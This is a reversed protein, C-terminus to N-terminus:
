VVKRMNFRSGYLNMIVEIEGKGMKLTRAIQPITVGQQYLNLVDYFPTGPDPFEPLPPSIHTNDAGAEANREKLFKNEAQPPSKIIELQPINPQKPAAIANISAISTEFIRKDGINQQFEPACFSRRTAQAGSKAEVVTKTEIQQKSYDRIIRDLLEIRSELRNMRINLEFVSEQMDRRLKLDSSPVQSAIDTQRTQLDRKTNELEHMLDDAYLCKKDAALLLERLEETKTELVKINHGSVLKMQELLQNFAMELAKMEEHIKLFKRQGIKKGVYFCVALASVVCIFVQVGIVWM